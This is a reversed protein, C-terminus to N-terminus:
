VQWLIGTLVRDVRMVAARRDRFEDLRSNGTLAVIYYFHTNIYISMAFNFLRM